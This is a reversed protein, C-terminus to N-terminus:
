FDFRSRLIASVDEEAIEIRRAEIVDAITEDWAVPIQGRLSAIWEAAEDLMAPTVCDTLRDMIDQWATTQKARYSSPGYLADMLSGQTAKGM